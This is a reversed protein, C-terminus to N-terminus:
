HQPEPIRVLELMEVAKEMAENQSMGQHLVLAEGIQRGITIVPNLSTMPEQFIM